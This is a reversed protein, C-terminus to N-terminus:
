YCISLSFSVHVVFTFSWSFLARIWNVGENAISIYRVYM